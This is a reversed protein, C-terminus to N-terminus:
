IGCYGSRCPQELGALAISIEIDRRGQFVPLSLYVIETLM